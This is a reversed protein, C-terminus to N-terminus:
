RFTQEKGEGVRLLYNAFNQAQEQNNSATRKVRMNITLKLVQIHMWLLSRKFAANVIDSRTGKKVVPLIQRFDGGFVIIKNGFAVNKLKPDIQGMLDRLTRDLAEFAHKHMMPCEDWIIIKANQILVCEDSGVNINCTSHSDLNFPIKLRSHATRAGDMLQAAIGSSAVALAIQRKARITSLILKYLFTKGTGGPGDIFFANKGYISNSQYLRTIIKDYANRQNHNLKNLNDDVYQQLENINYNLEDAIISRTTLLDINTNDKLTPMNPYNSIHHGTKVLIDNILHLAKNHVDDNFDAEPTSQRIQHLIDDSMANKYKHWLQAPDSPTCNLLIVAFLDRMQSATAFSNAENLCTDSENDNELYGLARCAEHFSHYTIGNVTRLDKFSFCGKRYLLLLRLAFRETDSPHVFYM